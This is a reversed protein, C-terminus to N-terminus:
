GEGGAVTKAAEGGQRLRTKSRRRVPDLKAHAVHQKRGDTHWSYERLNTRLLERDHAGEAPVLLNIPGGTVLAVLAVCGVLAGRSRTRSHSLWATPVQPLRARWLRSM